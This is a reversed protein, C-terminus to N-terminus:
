YAYLLSMNAQERANVSRESQIELRYVFPIHQPAIVTLSEAVGAGELQLGSMDSNGFVTDVIKAYITFPQGGTASLTMTMDPGTKPNLSSNCASNWGSTAKTLKDTMCARRTADDPDNPRVQLSVANFLTTELATKYETFSDHYESFNNAFNELINPVLEKMFIDTGGYSAEQATKYRKMAGTSSINQTIMYLVAMCITLSILTLMLSTVLAIGKNNALCHM